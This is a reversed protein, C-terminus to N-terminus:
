AELCHEQLHAEIKEKDEKLKDIKKDAEKQIKSIEDRIKVLLEPLNDLISDAEETM